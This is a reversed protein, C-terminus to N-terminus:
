KIFDEFSIHGDIMNKELDVEITPYQPDIEYPSLGYGLQGDIEKKVVESFIMRALYSEDDWRLKKALARKLMDALGSEEYTSGGDWHSYIYITKDEHPKGYKLAINQRMGM